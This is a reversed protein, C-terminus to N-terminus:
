FRRMWSAKGDVVIPAGGFLRVIRRWGARSQTGWVHTCGLSRAWPEVEALFDAAWEDMRSGGVLWLRCGKEGILTIQTTAAAIMEDGDFVGWLQADDQLLRQIVEEETGGDTRRAARELLPWAHRWIPGVDRLRIGTAMRRRAEPAGSSLDEPHLPAQGAYRERLLTM